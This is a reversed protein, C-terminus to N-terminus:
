LPLGEGTDVFELLGEDARALWDEGVGLFERRANVAAAYGPDSISGIEGEDTYGLSQWLRESAHLMGKGGYKRAKERLYDPDEAPLANGDPDTKGFNARVEDLASKALRPELASPETRDAIRALEERMEKADLEVTITLLEAM